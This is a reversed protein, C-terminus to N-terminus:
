SSICDSGVDQWKKGFTLRKKRFHKCIGTEQQCIDCNVIFGVSSMMKLNGPMETPTRFAANLSRHGIRVVYDIRIATAYERSKSERSYNYETPHRPFTTQKKKRKLSPNLLHTIPYFNSCIYDRSSWTCKSNKLVKWTARPIKSYVQIIIM